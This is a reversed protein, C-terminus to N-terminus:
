FLTPSDDAFVSEWEAVKKKTNESSVTYNQKLKAYGKSVM